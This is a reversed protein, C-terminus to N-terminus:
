MGSLMLVIVALMALFGASGCAVTKCTDPEKEHESPEAEIVPPAPTRRDSSSPATEATRTEPTTEFLCCGSLSGASLLALSLALIRLPNLM